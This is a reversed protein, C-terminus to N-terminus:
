SLASSSGFTGSVGPNAAVTAEVQMCLCWYNLVDLARKVEFRDQQRQYASSCELLIVELVPVVSCCHLM